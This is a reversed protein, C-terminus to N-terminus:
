SGSIMTKDSFDENRLWWYYGKGDDLFDICKEDPMKDMLPLMGYKQINADTYYGGNM